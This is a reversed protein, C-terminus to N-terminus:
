VLIFLFKSIPTDPIKIKKVLSYACNIKLKTKRNLLIKFHFINVTSNYNYSTGLSYYKNNTM